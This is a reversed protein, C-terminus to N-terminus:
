TLGMFLIFCRVLLIKCLWIAPLSRLPRTFAKGAAAVLHVHVPLFMTEEPVKMILQSNIPTDSHASALVLMPLPPVEFSRDRSPLWLSLAPPAGPFFVLTSPLPLLPYFGSHNVVLVPDSYALAESARTVVPLRHGVELNVNQSIRGPHSTFRGRKRCEIKRKLWQAERDFGCRPGCLTCLFRVLRSVVILSVVFHVTKGPIDSIRFIPPPTYSLLFFM